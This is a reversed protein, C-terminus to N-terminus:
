FIDSQLETLGITVKGTRVLGRVPPAPAFGGWNAVNRIVNLSERLTRIVIMNVFNRSPRTLRLIRDKM